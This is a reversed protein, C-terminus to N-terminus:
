LIADINREFHVASKYTHVIMKFRKTLGSVSLFIYYIMVFSFIMEMSSREFFLWFTNALWLMKAVTAVFDFYIEIKLTPELIIDTNCNVYYHLGQPASLRGCCAEFKVNHLLAIAVGYLLRCLVSKDATGFVCCCTVITGVNWAMLLKNVVRHKDIFQRDGDNDVSAAELGDSALNALRHKISAESMCTLLRSITSQVFIVAFIFLSLHNTWISPDVIKVIMLHKLPAFRFFNAKLAVSQENTFEGGGATISQYIRRWIIIAACSAFIICNVILFKADKQRTLFSFVELFRDHSPQGCESHTQSSSTFQSEMLYVFFLISTASLFLIINLLLDVRSSLITM